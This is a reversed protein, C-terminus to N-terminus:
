HATVRNLSMVELILAFIMQEITGDHSVLSPHVIPETVIM